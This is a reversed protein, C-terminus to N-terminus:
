MTYLYEIAQYTGLQNDISITNLEYFSFNNDIVVYPQNLSSLYPIDDQMMETGFIIFGLTNCANLSDIQENTNKSKDITKFLLNYGYKQAQVEMSEMLLLFFPHQNLIKGHRKYVLFTLLRNTGPSNDSSGSTNILNSLGLEHLQNLVRNRTKVSVGPKNNLIFSLATPSIDLQKALEKNTM